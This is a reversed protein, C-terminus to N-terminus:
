PLIRGLIAANRMVLLLYFIDALFIIAYFFDIVTDMHTYDREDEKRELYTDLYYLGTPLGFTLAVKLAFWLPPSSVAFANREIGMRLFVTTQVMDVTNFLCFASLVAIKILREFTDM